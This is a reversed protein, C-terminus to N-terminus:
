LKHGNNMGIAKYKIYMDQRPCEPPSQRGMKKKYIHNDIETFLNNLRAFKIKESFNRVFTIRESLFLINKPHDTVYHLSCCHPCM